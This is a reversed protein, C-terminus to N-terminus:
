CVIPLEDSHDSIFPDPIAMRVFEAIFVIIFRIESIGERPTNYLLHSIRAAEIAVSLSLLPSLLPPPQLAFTANM